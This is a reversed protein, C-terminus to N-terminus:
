YVGTYIFLRHIDEDKAAVPQAASFNLRASAMLQRRTSSNKNKKFARSIHLTGQHQYHEGAKLRIVGTKSLHESGAHGSYKGGPGNQNTYRTDESISVYFDEASLDVKAMCSLVYDVNTAAVATGVGWDWSMDCSWAAGESSVQKQSNLWGLGLKDATDPFYNALVYGSGFVAIAIVSYIKYAFSKIGM